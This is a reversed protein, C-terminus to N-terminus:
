SDEDLTELQVNRPNRHTPTAHTSSSSVAPRQSFQEGVRSYSLPNNRSQQDLEMFGNAVANENILVGLNRVSSRLEQMDYHLRDTMSRMEDIKRHLSQISDTEPSSFQQREIPAVQLPSQMQFDANSLPVSSIGLGPVAQQLPSVVPHNNRSVLRWGSPIIGSLNPDATLQGEATMDGARNTPGNAPFRHVGPIPLMSWGNPLPIRGHITPTQGLSTVPTGLIRTPTSQFGSNGPGPMPSFSRPTNQNTGEAATPTPVPLPSPTSAAPSPAHEGFVPRRCIPCTQQRQLWNRLCHLHLIHGCPLRKPTMDLGRPIPEMEEINEPPFDPHFMEERCITCTRDSNSLQEETATPYMVEMDRTAQRYRAHERLRRFLSYFSIYLQRIAYVPFSVYTHQFVLLTSYALLRLSDRVVELRFLYVSKEQWVQEPHRTEYVYLGLKVAEVTLNIFLVSFECIFLIRTSMDGFYDTSSCLYVLTIDLLSLVLFACTLRNFLHFQRETLQVQQRETRFACISHFVRAFMLTSLLLFFSISIPDLLTTVSLMAETLTIWFQEYLLELEFTQLSGFLLAKLVNAIAFFLCLCVNLGITIHIPSQSIMVTAAYVNASSYLSLLVSLGFLLISALVYLIFKM